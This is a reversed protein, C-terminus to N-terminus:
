NDAIDPPRWEFIVCYRNGYDLKSHSHPCTQQAPWTMMTYTNLKQGVFIISSISLDLCRMNCPCQKCWWAICRLATNSPYTPQSLVRWCNWQYCPCHSEAGSIRSSGNSTRFSVANQSFVEYPTVQMGMFISIYQGTRRVQDGQKYQSMRITM